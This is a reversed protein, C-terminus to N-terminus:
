GESYNGSEKWVPQVVKCGWWCHILTKVVKGVSIVTKIIVTGTLIFHYGITKIQMEM